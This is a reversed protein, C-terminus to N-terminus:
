APLDQGQEFLEQHNQIGFSEMVEATPEELLDMLQGVLMSPSTEHDNSM